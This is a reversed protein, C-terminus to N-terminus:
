SIYLLWVFSKIHWLCNKYTCKLIFQSENSTSSNERGLHSDKTNKLPPHGPFPCHWRTLRLIFYWLDFLSNQICSLFIFRLNTLSIFILTLLTDNWNSNSHCHWVQCFPDRSSLPRMTQWHCSAQLERDNWHVWHRIIIILQLLLLLLQQMQLIIATNDKTEKTKWKKIIIMLAARPFAAWVPSGTSARYM